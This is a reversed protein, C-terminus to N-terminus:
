RLSNAYKTPCEAFAGWIYFIGNSNIAGGSNAGVKFGTATVHIGEANNVESASDNFKIQRQNYNFPQRATDFVTWDATNADARKIWVMAPRFGCYGYPGDASNTNGYYMGFRSFGDVEAWAWMINTGSQNTAMSSGSGLHVVTDDPVADFGNADGTVGNTSNLLLQQQAGIYQHYVAWSNDAHSIRKILIWAPRKGLGHPLNLSSGTGTFRIISLGTNTGISAGSITTGATSTRLDVGTAAYLSGADKYGVDNYNYTSDSGGAKWCYSLYHRGSGNINNWDGLSFGDEDFSKLQIHQNGTYEANKGNGYLASVPGRVSDYDIWFDSVNRPKFWVLDPKFGIGRISRIKQDDGAYLKVRFGQYAPNKLPPEPFNETCLAKAGSPPQYFFKGIGNADSYNGGNFTNGSFTPNQGFNAYVNGWENGSSGDNTTFAIFHIYDELDNNPNSGGIRPPGSSNAAFTKVLTGNKYIELIGTDSNFSLGVITGSAYSGLTESTDSSSGWQKVRSGIAAGEWGANNYYAQSNIFSRNIGCIGFYPSLSNGTLYYEAYWTGSGTKMALTSQSWAQNRNRSWLNGDILNPVQDGSSQGQGIGRNFMAFNNKPTDPVVRWTEDDSWPYSNNTSIAANTSQGQRPTFIKPCEFGGHYKRHGVYLRFDSFHGKFPYGNVDNIAGPTIYTGTLNDMHINRLYFLPVGNIYVVYDAAIGDANTSRTVATHTWVGPPYIKDWNNGSDYYHNAYSAGGEYGRLWINAGEMSWTISGASNVSGISFLGASRAVFNTEGYFGEAMLRKSWFEVCYDQTGIPPIHFHYSTGSNSLSASSYGCSGYYLSHTDEVVSFNGPGQVQRPQSGDGRIIHSYDGLGGDLGGKVFPVALVLHDKLPDDRTEIINNRLGGKPQPEHSNIKLITDPESTHFDLGPANGFNLPYYGGQAGFGGKNKINEIITRPPLPCWSGDSMNSTRIQNGINQSGEGRKFYGFDEARLAAGDVIFVDTMYGDFFGVSSGHQQGIYMGHDYEFVGDLEAYQSHSSNGEDMRCKVGNVWLSIRDQVNQQTTDMQFVIHNWAQYDTFFESTDLYGNSATNWKLKYNEYHLSAHGNSNEFGFLVQRTNTDHCVKAWGSWTFTSGKSTGTATPHRWLYEQTM